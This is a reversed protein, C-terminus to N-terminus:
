IPGLPCFASLFCGHHWWLWFNRNRMEQNYIEISTEPSAQQSWGQQTIISVTQRVLENNRYAVELNPLWVPTSFVTQSGGMPIQSAWSRRMRRM